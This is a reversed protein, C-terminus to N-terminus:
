AVLERIIHLLCDLELPKQLGSIKHQENDRLPVYTSASTLIAPIYELREMGHLLRYLELGDMGPLRYDLLLLDPIIVRSIQLAQIANTVLFAQCHTEGKKYGILSIAM